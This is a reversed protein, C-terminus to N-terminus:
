RPSLSPSHYELQIQGELPSYLKIGLQDLGRLFELTKTTDRGLCVLRKVLLVDFKGDAAAKMVEMIGARKFDLGSSLDESSGVVVFGLQEAYDYLEKKQSKLHGHADDPADIRSYTWARQQEERSCSAQAEDLAEKEM